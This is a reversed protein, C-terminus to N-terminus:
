TLQKAAKKMAKLLKSADRIVDPNFQSWNLFHGIFLHCNLSDFECLTLLNSPELELAPFKHFPKIHHVNLNTKRGCCACAPFQKLHALRVSPWKSSRAAGSVTDYLSAPVVTITGRKLKVRELLM